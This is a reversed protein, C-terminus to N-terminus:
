RDNKLLYKNSIVKFSARVVSGDALPVTATDRARWVVGEAARDKGVVSRLGDVDALAQEVTSPFTLEPREPVAIATVWEPWEDRPLERGNVRLTFAAFHQGRLKLPNGQIGEGYTEGQLVAQCGPFTQALRDLVGLRRASRWLSNTESEILDLNRSCIGSAPVGDQLQTGDVYMSTSAGDLKETAYWAVPTTATFIEALNQVREEDTMPIWSPRVGRATGALEAPLPREYRVIGLVETVDSGAAPATGDQALEPFAAVPLALGQSYQGRLRATKLVHGSNGEADTRVGRPALFAFREDTVKLLSDVEFYVCLDGVAFEGRQAVVDWGRVRVRVITDADPIDAVELIREVTALRRPATAVPVTLTM